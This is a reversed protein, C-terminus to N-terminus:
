ARGETHLVLAGGSRVYAGALAGSLFEDREARTYHSPPTFEALMNGTAWGKAYGTTYALSITM